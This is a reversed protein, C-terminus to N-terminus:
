DNFITVAMELKSNVPKFRWALVDGEIEDTKDLYFAETRGTKPNHIYIGVDAADDYLRQCRSFGCTGAEESLLRMDTDWHFRSADLIVNAALMAM